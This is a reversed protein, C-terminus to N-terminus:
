RSKKAAKTRYEEFMAKQQSTPLYRWPLGDVYGDVARFHEMAERHRGQRVLLYALIHHVSAAGPHDPRAAQVDARAADIAETLLASRFHADTAQEDQHEYWEFLPLSALLSGPPAQAAASEAFERALEESGRWKGCWYQLAASHALFHHPSRETIRKWLDEMASHSYGLGLAVWIEQVLPTPDDPNLRDATAIAERAAELASHFDDFQKRSTNVAGQSGRLQWAIRIQVASRVAAADPDGPRAREWSELWAYGKRDALQGIKIVRHSRLDWDRGTAALLEAVPEWRGRRAAKAAKELQLDPGPLRANLRASRRYSAFLSVCLGVAFFLLASQM